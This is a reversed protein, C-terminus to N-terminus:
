SRSARLFEDFEDDALVVAGEVDPGPASALITELDVVGDDRFGNAPDDVHEVTVDTLAVLRGAANLRGAGRAAM